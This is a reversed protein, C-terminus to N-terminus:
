QCFRRLPGVPFLPQAQIVCLSGPPLTPPQHHLLQSCFSTPPAVPCYVPSWPAWLPDDLCEVGLVILWNPSRLESWSSKNNSFGREKQLCTHLSRSLHVIAVKQKKLRSAALPFLPQIWSHPSHWGQLKDSDVVSLSSMLFAYMHVFVFVCVCFVPPEWASSCNIASIGVSNM